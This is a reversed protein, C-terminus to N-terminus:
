GRRFRGRVMARAAGALGLALGIAAGLLGGTGYGVVAAAVGAMVVLRDSLENFFRREGWRADAPRRQVARAPGVAHLGGAPPRSPWPTPEDAGGRRGPRRIASRHAPAPGAPARGARRSPWGASGGRGAGRGLGPPEEDTMRKM